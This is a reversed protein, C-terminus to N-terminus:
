FGLIIVDQIEAIIKKHESASIAAMLELKMESERKLLPEIEEQQYENLLDILRIKDEKSM